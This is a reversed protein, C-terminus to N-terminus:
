SGNNAEKIVALMKHTAVVAEDETEFPPTELKYRDKEDKNLPWSLSGRFMDDKLNRWIYYNIEM